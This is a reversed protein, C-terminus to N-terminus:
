TPTVSFHGGIKPFFYFLHAVDRLFIFLNFKSQVIVQANINNLVATARPGLQFGFRNAVPKPKPEMPPTPPVHHPSCHYSSTSVPLNTAPVPNPRRRFGFATMQMSAANAVRSYPTKRAQPVNCARDAQFHFFFYFYIFHILSWIKFIVRALLAFNEKASAM